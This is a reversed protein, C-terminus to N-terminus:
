EKIRELRELTHWKCFDFLFVQHVSLLLTVSRRTVRLGQGFILCVVQHVSLLLTVSRRTVGLGQGLPVWDQVKVINCTMFSAVHGGIVRDIYANGDAYEQGLSSAPVTTFRGM